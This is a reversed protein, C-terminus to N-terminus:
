FRYSLMAYASRPVEVPKSFSEQVFELHNDDLLNQGVLSLTIGPRIDWGLRLDMTMYDDIDYGGTPSFIYVAKTEDVYRLWIDLELEPSLNFQGRLSAQQRNMGYVDKNKLFEESYGYSLDAKFFDSFRYGLALELGYTEGGANNELILNQQLTIWDFEVEATRVKDYDHCFVTLDMSFRSNPIFRYGLEYAILEEPKFDESGVINVLVPLGPPILPSGLLSSDYAANTLTGDSEGRSPTRVARSVAGWFKHFPNMSWMLRASPQIEFGSYDNHEFKSGLTLHFRDDSFSIGDQIFASYLQDSRANSDLKVVAVDFLDSNSFDDTTYRYRLGWIIEHGTGPAFSHQFDIDVNDRDEDVWDETRRSTDYYVQLAFDSTPSLIRKWRALLNGGSVSTEVPFTQMFSDPTIPSALFLDQQIDGQYVDGQVTLNDGPTLASDLRFGTRTMKWDDNADGGSFTEFIDRNNQKAYIRWTTNEGSSGGYRFGAMTKEVNGTGASIFGGQTEKSSRTIINIVGNVANAGWLAAGPGRIVEIRDVDELLVDNVEWYVGSFSPTYVSRGDIMVLLNASFRGNFGRSTVAWKNSDIRAVNMGPVMRLADPINTVGSRRLDENTIVFIAAASDSLNQSKKAVLTVQVEMLEEISLQILEPDSAGFCPFIFILSISLFFLISFPLKEKPYKLYPEGQDTM